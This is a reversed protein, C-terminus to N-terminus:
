DFNRISDALPICQVYDIGINRRLHLQTLGLDNSSLTAIYINYTYIQSRDRLNYKKTKSPLISGCAPIPLYKPLSCETRLVKSVHEFTPDVGILRWLLLL